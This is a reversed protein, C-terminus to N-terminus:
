DKTLWSWGNPPLRQVMALRKRNLRAINILMKAAPHNVEMLNLITLGDNTIVVDGFQDVLMGDLGKPGITGQVAGAVAKIANVNM